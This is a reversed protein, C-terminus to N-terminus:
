EDRGDDATETGLASLMPKVCRTWYGHALDRGKAQLEDLPRYFERDLHALLQRDSYDTFPYSERLIGLLDDRLKGPEGLIKRALNLRDTVV